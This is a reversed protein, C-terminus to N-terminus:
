LGRSWMFKNIWHWSIDSLTWVSDIMVMVHCNRWRIIIEIFSWRGKEQYSLTPGVAGVVRATSFHADFGQHNWFPFTSFSRTYYMHLIWLEPSLTTLVIGMKSANVKNMPRKLYIWLSNLHTITVLWCHIIILHNRNLRSETINSEFKLVFECISCDIYLIWQDKKLWQTRIKHCRKHYIVV